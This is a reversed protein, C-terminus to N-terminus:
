QHEAPVQPSVSNSPRLTSKWNFYASDTALDNLQTLLPKKNDAIPGSEALSMIETLSPQKPSYLRKNVDCLKDAFAAASEPLDSRKIQCANSVSDPINYESKFAQFVDLSAQLRFNLAIRQYIPDLVQKRQDEKFGARVLVPDLTTILNMLEENSLGNDWLGIKAALSALERGTAETLGQLEDVLKAAEVQKQDWTEAHFGFGEVKKFESITLM